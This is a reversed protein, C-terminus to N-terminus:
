LYINITAYHLTSYHLTTYHLTTYHLTTYYQCNNCPVTARALLGGATDFVREDNVSASGMIMTYGRRATRCVYATPVTDARCCVELKDVQNVKRLFRDFVWPLWSWIWSM